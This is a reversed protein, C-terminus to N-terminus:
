KVIEDICSYLGECRYKKSFRYSTSQITDKWSGVVNNGEIVHKIGNYIGDDTNDFVLGAEADDIIERAGSVNTSIVPVGLMIAETCANSYGESYSPCVFVDAKSTFKHPNSQSGLLFISEELHNDAVLKRCTEMEPGDGVVWLNFKFGERILKIACQILRPYGKEKTFRGVSIFTLRDKSYEINIPEKGQAIISEDDLTNYCYGIEINNLESKLRNANFKSVCFVKDFCPYYKRLKLGYDYGHMWAYHVASTNTSRSLIKISQGFQFAIEVDYKDRVAYKYLLKKPIFNLISAFGPFYFGFVPLVEVGQHLYKKSSPDCRYLPSLTVRDGRDSLNNAIAIAARAVGNADDFRNFMLLIKKM